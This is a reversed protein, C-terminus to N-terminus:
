PFFVMGGAEIQWRNFHIWFVSFFSTYNSLKLDILSPPLITLLITRSRFGRQQFRTSQFVLNLDVFLQIISISFIEKHVREGMYKWVGKEPGLSRHKGMVM